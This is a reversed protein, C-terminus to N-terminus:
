NCLSGSVALSGSGDVAVVREPPGWTLGSTPMTTASAAAAAAAKAAQRRTTIISEFPPSSNKDGKTSSKKEEAGAPNPSPRKKAPPPEVSPSPADTSITTKATTTTETATTTSTDTSVTTTFLRTSPFPRKNSAVFRQPSNTASTPILSTLSAKQTSSMLVPSNETSFTRTSSPTTPSQDETIPKSLANLRSEIFKGYDLYPMVKHRALKRCWKQVPCRSRACACKVTYRCSRYDFDFPITLEVGPMLEQTTRIIIRLKNCVIFHDLFCNPICSRRIFRADNGYQSTNIAVARDGFNHYIMVYRNYDNIPDIFHEYEELLMLNGRIETVVEGKGLRASAELGKDNHDFMVVRCLPTRGLCTPPLRQVRERGSAVRQAVFALLNESYFSVDAEKYDKAWASGLTSGVVNGRKGSSLRSPSDGFASIRKKRSGGVGLVMPSTTPTSEASVTVIPSSPSRDATSDASYIKMNHHYALQFPTIQRVPTGAPTSITSMTPSNVISSPSEQITSENAMGAKTSAPMAEVDYSTTTLDQKRKSARPPSPIRRNVDTTENNQRELCNMKHREDTNPFTTSRSGSAASGGSILGLQRARDTASALLQAGGIPHKIVESKGAHHHILSLLNLQKASERQKLAALVREVVESRVVFAPRLCSPCLYVSPDLLREKPTINTPDAEDTCAGEEYVIEMCEMHQLYRCNLCQLMRSDGVKVECLCNVTSWIAPKPGLDAASRRSSQGPINSAETDSDEEDSSELSSLKSPSVCLDEPVEIIKMDSELYVREGESEKVVSKCYRPVSFLVQDKVPAQTLTDAQQQQQQQPPQQDGEQVKWRQQVLLTGGSAAAKAHWAAFLAKKSESLGATSEAISAFVLPTVKTPPTVIKSSSSSSVANPSKVGKTKILSRSLSSDQGNEDAEIVAATGSTSKSEAPQKSIEIPITLVSPKPIFNVDMLHPAMAPPTLGVPLAYNHDNYPLGFSCITPGFSVGTEPYIADFDQIRKEKDICATLEFMPGVLHVGSEPDLNAFRQKAAQFFNSFPKVFKFGQLPSSIEEAAIDM